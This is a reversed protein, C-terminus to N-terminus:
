RILTITGNLHYRVKSSRTLVSVLYLYASQQCLIQKYYGDWGLGTEFSDYLLEGWRNFIQLRFSEAGMFYPLFVDNRGDGNPTFSNPIYHPPICSSILEHVATDACGLSDRMLVRYKGARDAFITQTTEGDPLWQYAAAKGASLRMSDIGNECFFYKLDPHRNTGERFRVHYLVFSDCGGSMQFTDRVDADSSIYNGNLLVRGGNCVSVQTESSVSANVLITREVKGCAFDMILKYIGPANVQLVSDSGINVGDKQWVLSYDCPKGKYIYTLGASGNQLCVQAPTQIQVEELLVNDVAIVGPVPNDCARQPSTKTCLGHGTIRITITNTSPVFACTNVTKWFLKMAPNGTFSDNFYRNGLAVGNITIDVGADEDDWGWWSGLDIRIFYVTGPIVQVDQEIWNGNGSMCGTIDVWKNGPQYVNAVQVNNNSRWGSPGQCNLNGIEFNFNYLLQAQLNCSLFMFCLFLIGFGAKARSYQKLNDM